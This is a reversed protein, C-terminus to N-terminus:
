DKEIPKITYKGNTMTAIDKALNHFWCWDMANDYFRYGIMIVQGIDASTFKNTRESPRCLLYLQNLVMIHEECLPIVTRFENEDGDEDYPNISHESENAIEFEKLRGFLVGAASCEYKTCENESQFETGDIAVYTVQTEKVVREIVKEKKEM